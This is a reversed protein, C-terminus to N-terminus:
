PSKLYHRFQVVTYSVAGVIGLLLGVLIFIPTTGALSDVLWGLLFGAALLAAIVAGMGLLDSLGPSEAAM